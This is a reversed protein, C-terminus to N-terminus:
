RYIHININMTSCQYVELRTAAHQKLYRQEVQQRLVCNVKLDNLSQQFLLNVDLTDEDPRPHQTQWRIMEHPM